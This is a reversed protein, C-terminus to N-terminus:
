LSKLIIKRGGKKGSELSENQLIDQLESHLGPQGPIFPSEGAEGGSHHFVSVVLCLQTNSDTKKPYKM